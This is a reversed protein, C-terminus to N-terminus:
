FRAFVYIHIHDKINHDVVGMYFALLAEKHGCPGPDQWLGSEGGWRGM